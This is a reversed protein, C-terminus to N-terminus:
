KKRVSRIVIWLDRTTSRFKRNLTNKLDAHNECGLFAEIRKVTEDYNYIVDEFRVFLIRDTDKREQNERLRKYYEVFVKVDQRPM